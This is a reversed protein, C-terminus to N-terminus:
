SLSRSERGQMVLAGICDMLLNANAIHDDSEFLIPTGASAIVRHRGLRPKPLATGPQWAENSFAIGVPLIAANAARAIRSIGLRGRGVGNVQDELKTIRGEPMLAAAQGSVLANIMETEAAGGDDKSFPICGIGTFGAGLAPNKFFRANVGIRSHIGFNGMFILAVALDFLSSHNAAVLVPRDTPLEIKEPLEVFSSLRSVAHSVGIAFRHRRDFGTDAFLGKAEGKSFM